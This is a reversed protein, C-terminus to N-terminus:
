GPPAASWRSRGTAPRSSGACRHAAPGPQGLHLSPATPDFGCYFTVPGADLATACRTSTPAVARDPRAVAPRRPRRGRDRPVDCGPRRTLDPQRHRTPRRPAARGTRRCPRTATSGSGGRCRRATAARRGVRPGTRVADDAVPAARRAAALPSGAGAVTRRRRLARDIGLASTLRAPGRALDRTAARRRDARRPSRRAGTSSRAPGCCCRRRGRGDPGCVLNVCWHM